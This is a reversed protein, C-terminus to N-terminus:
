VAALDRISKLGDIAKLEARLPSLGLADIAATDMCSGFLDRAKQGPQSVKGAVPATLLGWLYQANDNGLKGYVSWSAQDAPVPNAKMWGGCSFQYFDTCAKSTKDMAAVDLSPTYPLEHLPVAQALLALLLLM